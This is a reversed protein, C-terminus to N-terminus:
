HNDNENTAPTQVSLEDVQKALDKYAETDGEFFALVKDIGQMKGKPFLDNRYWGKGEIAGLAIAATVTSRVFDFGRGTYFVLQIEQSENENVKSKGLKLRVAFGPRIKQPKGDPGTVSVPDPGDDRPGRKMELIVTSWHKMANGGRIETLHLGQANPVQYVHGILVVCVGPFESTAAILSNLKRFVEGLKTQLNLMNDKTLSRDGKKDQIDGKPVMGGISDIVVLDVVKQRLTTVLRDLVPEMSEAEGTEYKLVILRSNDIGLKAAWEPDHSNEFDVWAIIADPNQAQHNAITQYCLATKGTKSPGAVV